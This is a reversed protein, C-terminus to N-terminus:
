IANLEEKLADRVKEQESETLGPFLPLTLATEYYKDAQPYEIITTSKTRFYPQTYIPIYHKQVGIGREKMREFIASSTKNGPLLTLRVIYLHFSSYCEPLQIPTIINPHILNDDYWKALRNREAVYQDLRKLQSLGLAAQLENMRYNFGLTIQEYYWSAECGNVMQDLDRTIGHSSYLRVKNATEECNTVLMGGEATTIM